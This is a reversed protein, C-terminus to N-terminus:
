YEITNQESDLYWAKKLIRHMRKLRSHIDSPEYRLKAKFFNSIGFKNVMLISFTPALITQYNKQVSFYLHYLLSIILLNGFSCGFYERNRAIISTYM